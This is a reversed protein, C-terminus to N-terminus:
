VTADEARKPSVVQTILVSLNKAPVTNGLATLAATRVNKDSHDVAKLLASLAEIRRAGVLDLLLPYVKGDAKALRAVIDKDISEGPLDALATKATKALEADSELAIDLLPSLCTANGVRGLANIAAVRVPKPGKGAAKLVAPLVVTEPRDAMAVIVL